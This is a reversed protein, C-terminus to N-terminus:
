GLLLLVKPLKVVFVYNQIPANKGMFNCLKSLKQRLLLGPLLPYEFINAIRTHAAPFPITKLGKLRPYPRTIMSFQDLIPDRKVPVGM